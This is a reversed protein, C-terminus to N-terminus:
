TLRFDVVLPLHDSAARAQPGGPVRVDLVEVGPGVFAHRKLHGHLRLAARLARIAKEIKTM